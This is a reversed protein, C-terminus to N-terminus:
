LIKRYIERIGRHIQANLLHIDTYQRVYRGTTKAVFVYFFVINNFKLYVM